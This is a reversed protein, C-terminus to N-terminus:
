VKSKLLKTSFDPFNCEKKLQIAKEWHDEPKETHAQNAWFPRRFLQIQKKKPWYYRNYLKM